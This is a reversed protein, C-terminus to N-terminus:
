EVEQEQNQDQEREGNIQDLEALRAKEKERDWEKAGEILGRDYDRAEDLSDRLMEFLEPTFRQLKFGANFGAIYTKEEQEM